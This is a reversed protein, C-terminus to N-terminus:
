ESRYGPALIIPGPVPNVPRDGYSGTTEAPVDSLCSGYKPSCAWRYGPSLGLMANGFPEHLCKCRRGAQCAMQGSTQAGCPFLPAAPNANHLFQHRSEQALAPALAPAFASVFAPILAPLVALTLARGLGIRRPVAGLGGTRGQEHNSRSGRPTM